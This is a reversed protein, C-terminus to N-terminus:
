SVVRRIFYRNAPVGEPLAVAESDPLAIPQDSILLGGPALLPALAQALYAALKRNEEEVGTGIDCHALLASRGLREAAAPLTDHIDGLFLHQDDPICAPHAAVRRDFVYIADRGFLEGLHDYTRGNGLGLELIAGQQGTLEGAAFNLCSRQAKLRRIVSDLRSM